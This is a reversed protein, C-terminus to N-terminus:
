MEKGLKQQHLLAPFASGYKNKLESAEQPHELFCSWYLLAMQRLTRELLFLHLVLKWVELFMLYSKLKHGLNGASESIFLPCPESFIGQEALAAPHINQTKRLPAFTSKCWFPAPVARPEPLIQPFLPGTAQTVRHIFTHFISYGLVSFPFFFGFLFALQLGMQALACNAPLFHSPAPAINRVPPFDSQASQRFVRQGQGQGGLILEPSTETLWAKAWPPFQM